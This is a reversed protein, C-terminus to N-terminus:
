FLPTQNLFFYEFCPNNNECFHCHCWRISTLFELVEFPVNITEDDPDNYDWGFKKFFLSKYM